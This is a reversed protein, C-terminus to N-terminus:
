RGDNGFLEAIEMETSPGNARIAIMGPRSPATTRLGLAAEIAPGDVALAQTAEQALIFTVLQQFIATPQRAGPERKALEKSLTTLADASFSPAHGQGRWIPEFQRLPNGPWDTKLLAEWQEATL